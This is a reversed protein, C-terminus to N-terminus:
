LYVLKLLIHLLYFYVAECCHHLNVKCPVHYIDFHRSRTASLGHFFMEHPMAIVGLIVLAVRDFVRDSASNVAGKTLSRSMCFCIFSAAEVEVEAAADVKARVAVEARTNGEARRREVDVDAVVVEGM